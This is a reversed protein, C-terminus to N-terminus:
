VILQESIFKYNVHYKLNTESVSNCIATNSTLNRKIIGQNRM